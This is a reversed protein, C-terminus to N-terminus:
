CRLIFRQKYRKPVSTTACQRVLMRLESQEATALMLMNDTFISRLSSGFSPKMFFQDNPM